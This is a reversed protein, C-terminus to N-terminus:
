VGQSELGTNFWLYHRLRHTITVKMTLFLLSLVGLVVNVRARLTYRVYGEGIICIVATILILVLTSIGGVRHFQRLVQKDFPLLYIYGRIQMMELAQVLTLIVATTTVMSKSMELSM